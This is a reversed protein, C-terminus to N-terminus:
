HYIARILEPAGITEAFVAVARWHKHSKDRLVAMIGEIGPKLGLRRYAGQRYGIEVNHREKPELNKFRWTITDGEWSVTGPGQLSEICRAAGDALKVTILGQAIRGHWGAGTAMIYNFQRDRATRLGHAHRAYKPTVPAPPDNKKFAADEPLRGEYMDLERAKTENWEPAKGDYSAYTKCDYEVVITRKQGATFAMDWLFWATMDEGATYTYSGDARRTPDHTKYKQEAGDVTVKLNAIAQGHSEFPMVQGPFGVELSTASDSTNRMWFTAKVHANNETLTVEVKEADMSVSTEERPALSRGPIPPNPAADGYAAQAVVAACLVALMLRLM